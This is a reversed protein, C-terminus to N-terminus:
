LTRESLQWASHEAATGWRRVEPPFTSCGTRHKGFTTSGCCLWYPKGGAMKENMRADSFFQRGQADVAEGGSSKQAPRGPLDFFTICVKCKAKWADIVEITTDPKLLDHQCENGTPEVASRLRAIEGLLALLDKTAQTPYVLLRVRDHICQLHEDTIREDNTM